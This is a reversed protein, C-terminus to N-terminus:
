LTPARLRELATRLRAVIQNRPMPSTQLRRREAEDHEARELAIWVPKLADPDDAQRPFLHWHLHPVQNGLSECNMKRPEFALAIAHSLMAMENLFAARTDAPMFHLETHHSRAVLVCYGTHYQWPGLLAVSHPFQWVVQGAPPNKLKECLPCDM